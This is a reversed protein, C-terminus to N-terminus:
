ITEKNTSLNYSFYGGNHPMVSSHMMPQNGVAQIQNSQMCHDAEPQQEGPAVFDVTRKELDLKEKESICDFGSLISVPM